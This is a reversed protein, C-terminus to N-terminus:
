SDPSHRVLGNGHFWCGAHSRTAYQTFRGTVLVTVLIPGKRVRLVLCESLRLASIGGHSIGPVQGKSGQMGSWRGQGATEAGVQWMRASTRSEFRLVGSGAARATVGRCCGDSSARCVLCCRVEVRAAWGEAFVPCGGQPARAQRRRDVGRATTRAVAAATASIPPVPAAVAKASSSPPGAGCDETWSEWLSRWRSSVALSRACTLASLILWDWAVALARFATGPVAVEASSSSSRLPERTQSTSTKPLSWLLWSTMMSAPLPLTRLCCMSWSSWSLLSSWSSLSSSQDSM